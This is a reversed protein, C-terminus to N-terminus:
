LDNIYVFNKFIKFVTFFYFGRVTCTLPLSNFHISIIDILKIYLIDYEYLLFCFWIM